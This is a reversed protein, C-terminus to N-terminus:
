CLCLFRDWNGDSRNSSSNSWGHGSVVTTNIIVNRLEEPLKNFLDGNAYEHIKMASWGGVNTYSSNM